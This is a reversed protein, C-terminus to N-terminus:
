EFVRVTNTNVSFTANYKKLASAAPSKTVAGTESFTSQHNPCLFDNSSARYNITTGEHTCASSVAIWTDALTRAIIVKKTGVVLFGGKTQLATNGSATIDISFDLKDTNVIPDPDPIETESCSQLCNMLMIAGFGMGVQKLFDKRDITSNNTM